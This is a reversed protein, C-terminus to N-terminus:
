WLSLLFISINACYRRHGRSMLRVFREDTDATQPPKCPTVARSRARDAAETALDFCAIAGLPLGGDPDSEATECFRHSRPHHGDSISLENRLLVARYDRHVLIGSSVGSACKTVASGPVSIIPCSRIGECIPATSNWLQPPHSKLPTRHRM